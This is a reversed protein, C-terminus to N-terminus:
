ASAWRCRQQSMGQPLGRATQTELKTLRSGVVRQTGRVTPERSALTKLRAAGGLRDALQQRHKILKTM